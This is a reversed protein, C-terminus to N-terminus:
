EEECIARAMITISCACIISLLISLGVVDLEAITEAYIIVILMACIGIIVSLIKNM